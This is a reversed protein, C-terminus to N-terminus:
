TRRVSFRVHTNMLYYATKSSNIVIINLSHEGTSLDATRLDCRFGADKWAPEHFFQAVDPRSLHYTVRAPPSDDVQLYVASGLQRARLDVAWGVVSLVAGSAISPVTKGGSSLTKTGSSLSDIWYLTPGEEFDHPLTSPSNPAATSAAPPAGVDKRSTLLSAATTVAIVLLIAISLWGVVQSRFASERSFRM